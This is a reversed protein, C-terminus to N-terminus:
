HLFAENEYKVTEIQTTMVEIHGFSKSLGESIVVRELRGFILAVEDISFIIGSEILNFWVAADRKLSQANAVERLM